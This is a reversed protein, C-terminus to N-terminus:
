VKDRARGVGMRLGWECTYKFVHVDVATTVKENSDVRFTWVLATADYGHVAIGWGIM